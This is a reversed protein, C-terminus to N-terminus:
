VQLSPHRCIPLVSSWLTGVEKTIQQLWDVRFFHMCINSWNYLLDGTAPDVASAAAPDMESGEVM